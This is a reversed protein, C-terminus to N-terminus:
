RLARALEGAFEAPHTVCGLHGGPLEIVPLGLRRGLEVSVRHAPYGRSERGAALVLREENAALVDLDLGVAPYQRLEQEFWHRANSLAQERDGHEMARAMALRDVRPFTEERFRDLAPGIGSRRYTDYVGAFFAAWREGDPLLRVAPPEFPVLTRVVAPHRALVDLGVIAGSSAGFVIAPEGGVHDVLHRVDDADSELRRDDDGRAGDLLSRSFGRRDYVLVACSRRLHEAVRRFAEATGSAGPIM